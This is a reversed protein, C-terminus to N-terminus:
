KQNEVINFLKMALRNDEVTGRMVLINIMVEYPPMKEGREYSQYTRLKLDLEKAMEKQTMDHRKRVEEFITM